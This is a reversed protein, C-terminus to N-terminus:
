KSSLKLKLLVDYKIKFLVRHFYFIINIIFCQVLVSHYIFIAVVKTCDLRIHLRSKYDTMNLM